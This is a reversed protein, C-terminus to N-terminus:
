QSAEKEEEQKQSGSGGESTTKASDEFDKIPDFRHPFSGGHDSIMQDDDFWQKLEDLGGLLKIKDLTAQSLFLRVATFAIKFVWNPEIVAFMALREPYNNLVVQVFSSSFAIDQNSRSAGQRDMIVSFRMQGNQESKRIIKHIIAVSYTTMDELPFQKPIHNKVKIVLCAQGKKDFGPIYFRQTEIIHSMKSLDIDAPRVELHWKIAKQMMESAKSIDFNRAVLFRMLTRPSAQLMIRDLGISKGEDEPATQIVHQHM